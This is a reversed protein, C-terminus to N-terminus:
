PCHAETSQAEPSESSCYDKLCMQVHGDADFGDDMTQNQPAFYAEANRRAENYISTGTCKTCGNTGSINNQADITNSTSKTKMENSRSVSPLQHGRGTLVGMRLTTVILLAISFFIPLCRCVVRAFSNKLFGNVRKTGTGTQLVGRIYDFVLLFAALLEDQLSHSVSLSM